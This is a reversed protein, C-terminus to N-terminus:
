EPTKMKAPPEVPDNPGTSEFHKRPTLLSAVIAAGIMFVIILVSAWPPIHLEHPLVLKIAAFALVAALGYHLYQLDSITKALVIYLSRLGLIAFVNSSYVIFIETQGIGEATNIVSFAAPVSDIAFVIDTLELGLVAVFLPTLKWRNDQRVLFRSENPDSAVPFHRSLFVVAKNEEQRSPDERFAHYAAYLLIAAFIYEVYEGWGEAGLAKAGMFIFIARFVLAGFIGWFLAIRQHDKPIRLTRFVILFVFLNDLSLSKEILYAALYEQGDQSGHRVWVFVAFALGAAVWIVSWTIAWGHTEAREGRHSFLDILLLILVVGGFVAWEWSSIESM